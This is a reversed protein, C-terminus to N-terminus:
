RRPHVLLATPIGNQAATTMWAWKELLRHGHTAQRNRHAALDRHSEKVGPSPKDSQLESM